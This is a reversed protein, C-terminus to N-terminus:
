HQRTAADLRGAVGSVQGRMGSARRALRRAREVALAGYVARSLRQAASPEGALAARQAFYGGGTRECHPCLCEPHHPKKQM